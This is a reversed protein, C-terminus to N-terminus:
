MILGESGVVVGPGIIDTRGLEGNFTYQVAVLSPKVREYLKQAMEPAVAAVPSSAVDAAHIPQMARMAAAPERNASRCGAICLSLLCATKLSLRPMSEGIIRLENQQLRRRTKLPENAM